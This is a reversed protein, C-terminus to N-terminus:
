HHSFRHRCSTIYRRCKLLFLSIKGVFWSISWKLSCTDRLHVIKMVLPTDNDETDIRCSRNIPLKINESSWFIRLLHFSYLPCPLDGGLLFLARCPLRSHRMTWWKLLYKILNSTLLKQQITSLIKINRKLRICQTTSLLEM